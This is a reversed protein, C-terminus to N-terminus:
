LTKKEDLVDLITLKLLEEKNKKSEHMKLPYRRTESLKLLARVPPATRNSWWEAPQVRELVLGAPRLRSKWSM